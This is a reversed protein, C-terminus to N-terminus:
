EIGKCRQCTCPKAARIAELAQKVTDFGDVHEAVNQDAHPIFAYGDILTVIISHGLDREDDWHKVWRHRM